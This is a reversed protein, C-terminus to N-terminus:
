SSFPIRSINMDQDRVRPVTIERTFPGKCTQNLSRSYLFTGQFTWILGTCDCPDNKLLSTPILQSLPYLHQTIHAWSGLSVPPRKVSSFALFCIRDLKSFHCPGIPIKISDWLFQYLRRSESSYSLLDKNSEAMLQETTQLLLPDQADRDWQGESITQSSKKGGKALLLSHLWGEQQSHM